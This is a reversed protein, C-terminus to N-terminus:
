VPTITDGARSRIIVQKLEDGGPGYGRVDNPDTPGVTSNGNSDIYPSNTITSQLATGISNTFVGFVTLRGSGISISDLQGLASIVDSDTGRNSRATLIGTASDGTLLVDNFPNINVASYSIEGLYSLSVTSATGSDGDAGGSDGGIGRTGGTLTITSGESVAVSNIWSLGGGGGGGGANSGNSGGSGGGPGIAVISVSDVGEPITFTTSLPAGVLTPTWTITGDDNSADEPHATETAVTFSIVHDGGTTNTPSPLASTHPTFSGTYRAVGKTFRVDALKGDFFNANTRNRGFQLENNGGLHLERYRANSQSVVTGDVGLYATNTSRVFSVALHHWGTTTIETDNTLTINGGGGNDIMFFSIKPTDGSPTRIHFDFEGTDNTSATDVEDRNTCFPGAFQTTADFKAYCEMTWDGGDLDINSLEIRDEDASSFDLVDQTSGYPGAIQSVATGYNSVTATGSADTSASSGDLLLVVDDFNTDDTYVQTNLYSATCNSASSVDSALQSSSYTVTSPIRFIAIGSGGNGGQITTAATTHYGGGGGGGGYGSRGHTASSTNLTDNWAVSAVSLFGGSGGGGDGGQSSTSSNGANRHGGGGGGARVISKGTITSALGDGGNGGLTTAGDAGVAGAGGGGGGSGDTTTNTTAGRGGASGEGSVGATRTANLNSSGGASGGSGGPLNSHRAGYGGGTTTVTTIDSGSISSTRGPHGAMNDGASFGLGGEGGQGVTISYATGSTMTLATELSSLGGSNGGTGDTGTGWSARYGGAGGGGDLVGGGGGGGALILYDATTTSNFLSNPLLIVESYGDTALQASDANSPFSAAM